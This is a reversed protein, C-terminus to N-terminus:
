DERAFSCVALLGLGLGMIFAPWTFDSRRLISGFLSIGGVLALALGLYRLVTLGLSGQQSRPRPNSVSEPSFDQAEAEAPQVEDRRGLGYLRIRGRFTPLARGCIPCAMEKSDVKERCSPCEMKSGGSFHWQARENM